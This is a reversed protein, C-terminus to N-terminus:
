SDCIIFDVSKQNIRSLAARFNQGCVKYDLLPSLGLKRFYLLVKLSVFNKEYFMKECKTM